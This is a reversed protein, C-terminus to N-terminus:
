EGTPKQAASEDASSQEASEGATRWEATGIILERSINFTTQKTGVWDDSVLTAEGEVAPGIQTRTGSVMDCTGPVFRGRYLFRGGVAPMQFTIGGPTCTGRIPQGHGHHTGEFDGSANEKGIQIDGEYRGNVVSMWLRGDETNCVCPM